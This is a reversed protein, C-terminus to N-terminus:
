DSPPPNEQRIAMQLALIEADLRRYHFLTRRTGFRWGVYVGSVIIISLIALVM